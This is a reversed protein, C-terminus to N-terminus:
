YATAPQYNISISDTHALGLVFDEDTLILKKGSIEYYDPNVVTETGDGHIVTVIMEEESTPARDLEFVSKKELITKGIEELLVSYDSVGIDLTLSGNGVADGLAIYRDGRDAAVTQIAGVAADTADRAAQLAQITAATAPVISVVFYSDAGKSSGELDDFFTAISTKADDVPILSATDACVSPTYTYGDVTKSPCSLGDAGYLCNNGPTDCCYGNMGTISGAGNMAVLSAQDCAYGTFPKFGAPPTSPITMSQDEEDSLFIIGHLSDARFFATGSTENDQLFQLLSSLGRESGQGASGTTANIMFDKVLQDKWADDAAVGDPPLTEIVAKGSHVTDNEITNLCQNLSTEGAGSNPAFCNATGTTSAAADRKRCDTDGYMFYPMAEFCFATIPGDHVGDALKAYDPGWGPILDNYTFGSDFAGTALNVLTPNWSPNQFTALRGQIYPSTWGTSGSVVTSLYTSFAPNAMYTDTTIVAIRIDWTPKMYRAAFGSFGDRLKRQSVDMSASNDVVWLLDIKTNVKQQSTFKEVQQLFRFSGPVQPTCGSLFLAWGCVLMAVLLTERVLHAFTRAARVAPGASM